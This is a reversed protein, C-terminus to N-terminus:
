EQAAPPPSGSHPPLLFQGSRRHALLRYVAYGAAAMEAAAVLFAPGPLPQILAHGARELFSEALLGMTDHHEFPHHHHPHHRPKLLRHTIYGIAGGHAAGLVVATGFAVAGAALAWTLPSRLARHLRGREEQEREEM